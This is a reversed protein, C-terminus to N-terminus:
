RTETVPTVPSRLDMESPNPSRTARTRWCVDAGTQTPNPILVGSCALSTPFIASPTITPVAQTLAIPLLSVGTSVAFCNAASNRSANRFSLCWHYQFHRDQINDGPLLSLKLGRKPLRGRDNRAHRSIDGM